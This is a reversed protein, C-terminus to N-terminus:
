ISMWIKEFVDPLGINNLEKPGLKLKERIEVPMSYGAQDEIVSTVTDELDEMVDSYKEELDSIYEEVFSNM